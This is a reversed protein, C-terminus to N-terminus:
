EQKNEGDNGDSDDTTWVQGKGESQEPEPASQQRSDGDAEGPTLAATEGPTVDAEGPTVAAAEDPVADSVEHKYVKQVFTDNEFGNNKRPDVYLSIQHLKGERVQWRIVTILIACVLVAIV